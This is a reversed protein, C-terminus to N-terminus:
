MKCNFYCLIERFETARDYRALAIDQYVIRENDDFDDASIESCIKKYHTLNPNNQSLSEHVYSKLKTMHLPSLIDLYIAMNIPLSANKWKRIHGKLEARMAAQFDTETFEEVCKMYIGDNQLVRKMANYKHDM